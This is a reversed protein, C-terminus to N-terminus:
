EVGTPNKVEVGEKLQKKLNKLDLKALELKEEYTKMKIIHNKDEVKRNYPKLSDEYDRQAMTFERHRNNVMIAEELDEIERKRKEIGKKCLKKETEDLERKM